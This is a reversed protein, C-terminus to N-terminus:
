GHEFVELENLCVFRTGNIIEDFSVHWHGFVWLEPQHEVLMSEFAQEMRTDTNPFFPKGMRPPVSYPATHTVMVRPKTEMYRDHVSFLEAFSLQEDEWWTLGPTRYAHDISWAGGVFMMDGDFHGDPIWFPHNRCAQPNDHNGRVFRHNGKEMSDHPPNAMSAGDNHRFGIGMDGVQVTEPYRRIIDRYRSFKGHVDGIFIM